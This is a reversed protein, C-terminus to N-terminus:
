PWTREFLLEAGDVDDHQEGVEVFGLRAALALSASNGPGIALRFRHVDHDAAAASMMGIIAESAYGNRRHAALVTYGLELRGDEPPDHFGIHGVMAGTASAVVLRVRWPALEPAARMRAAFFELMAAEGPTAHPWDPPIRVGAVESAGALLADLEAVGLAVLRLRATVVIPQMPDTHCEPPM